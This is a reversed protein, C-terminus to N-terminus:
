LHTWSKRARIDNITKQTVSLRQALERLSAEPAQRIMLVQDTSLKANGNSTGRSSKLGEKAAHKENDARSSWELNCRPTKDDREIWNDGKIGNIHNVEPLNKPNPLFALALVRPVAVSKSIGEFTLTFYVRGTPKHTTFIIAKLCMPGPRLIQGDKYPRIAGAAIARLIWDDKWSSM